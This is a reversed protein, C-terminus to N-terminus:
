AAELPPEADGDPWQNPQPPEDSYRDDLECCFGGGRYRPCGPNYPCSTAPLVRRVSNLEIQRLTKNPLATM